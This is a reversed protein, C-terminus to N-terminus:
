PETEIKALTPTFLNASQGFGSESTDEATMDLRILTPQISDAEGNHLASFSQCVRISRDQPNYSFLVFARSRLACKEGQRDILGVGTRSLM